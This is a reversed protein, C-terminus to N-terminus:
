MCCRSKHFCVAVRTHAGSIGVVFVLFFEAFFFYFSWAESFDKIYKSMTNFNAYAHKFPNAAANALGDSTTAPVSDTSETLAVTLSSQRVEEQDPTAECVGLIKITDRLVACSRM